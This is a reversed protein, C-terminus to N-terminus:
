PQIVEDDLDRLEQMWANVELLRQELTARLDISAQFKERVAHELGRDAAGGLAHGRPLAELQQRL